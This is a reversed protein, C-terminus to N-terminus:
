QLFKYTLTSRDNWNNTREMKGDAWMRTTETGTKKVRMIACKPNSDPQGHGLFGFYTTDNDVEDILSWQTYGADQM